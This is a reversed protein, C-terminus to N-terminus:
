SRAEIHSAEWEDTDEIGENNSQTKANLLVSEYMAQMERTLEKSNAVPMALKAALAYSLANAFSVDFASPDTVEATYCLTATAQNTYIVRGSGSDDAGVQYAIARNKNRSTPDIIYRAKLCDNPYAYKYEWVSPPTGADALTVYKTAFGWHHDRLVQDRTEEYILGCRDAEASEETLSQIRSHNGIHSLALNCISVESRAM